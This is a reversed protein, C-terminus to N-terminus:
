RTPGEGQFHQPRMVQVESRMVVVALEELRPGLREMLRDAVEPTCVTFLLAHDSIGTPEGGHWAGHVGRGQETSLVTWGRVGEVELMDLVRALRPRELIVELKILTALTAM